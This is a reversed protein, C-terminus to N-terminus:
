SVTPESLRGGPWREARTSDNASWWNHIATM